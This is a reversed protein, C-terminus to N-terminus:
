HESKRYIKHKTPEFSVGTKEISITGIPIKSYNVGYKDHQNNVQILELKKMEEDTPKHQVIQEVVQRLCDEMMQKRKILFAKEGKKMAEIAEAKNM